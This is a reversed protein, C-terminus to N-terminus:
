ALATHHSRAAKAVGDATMHRVRRLVAAFVGAPVLPLLPMGWVDVAVFAPAPSIVLAGFAGREWPLFGTRQAEALIWALPVALVVLDYHLLYPTALPTAATMLAVEARAGPRRRLASVLLWCAGAAAVAQAAYGWGVHGGTLAKAASFVGAMESSVSRPTAELWRRANEAGTLFASWIEFGFLVTAAATLGLVTGAAAAFARWRGAAALALPLVLGLQPKYVLCGLCVGAVVPRRALHYAAAGLLAASLFGNQVYWATLFASPFALFPLVARWGPLMARLALLFAAFTTGLWALASIAYPLLALPLFLLLSVPIYIFMCDTTSADARGHLAVQAARMAGVDYVAAPGDTLAVKSAAWFCQFDMVAVGEEPLLRPGLLLLYGLVIAPTLVRGAFAAHDGMRKSIRRM